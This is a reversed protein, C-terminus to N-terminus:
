STHRDVVSYGPPHPVHASTSCHASRGRHPATSAIQLPGVARARHSSRLFQRQNQTHTGIAKYPPREAQRTESRRQDKADTASRRSGPPQGADRTSAWRGAPPAGARCNVHSALLELVVVKHLRAFSRHSPNDMWNRLLAPAGGAANRPTAQAKCGKSFRRQAPPSAQTRTRAWRGAPPAGARCNASELRRPVQRM